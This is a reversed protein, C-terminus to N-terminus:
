SAVRGCAFLIERKTSDKEMELFNIADDGSLENQECISYNFCDTSVVELGIESLMYEVEALTFERHHGEFPLPTNFQIGISPHVSIGSLLKKRQYVYAINPTDILLHGGPNLISVLDTMLGKPTHPIHEIVGLCLIFDYKRDLSKLLGENNTRDLITVGAKRLADVEEDLAPSYASYADYADVEFGLRRAFLSFNGFYSGFDLVRQGPRGFDRLCRGVRMMRVLSLRIYNDWDFGQLGPSNKALATQDGRRVLARVQETVLLGDPLVDLYKDSLEDLFRLPVKLTNPPKVGTVEEMQSLRSQLSAAFKEASSLRTQLEAVIVEHSALQRNFGAALSENISLRSLVDTLPSEADLLRRVLTAITVKKRRIRDRVKALPTILALLIRDKIDATTKLSSEGSVDPNNVTGNEKKAREVDGSDM